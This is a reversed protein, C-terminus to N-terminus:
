PRTSRRRRVALAVEVVAIVVILPAGLSALLNVISEWSGRIALVVAFAAILGLAIWLTRRVDRVLDRGRQMEADYDFEGRRVPRPAPNPSLNSPRRIQYRAM